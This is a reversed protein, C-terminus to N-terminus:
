VESAGTALSKVFRLGTVQYRRREYFRHADTRERRSNVICALAQQSRLWSEAQDILQTGIGQRRCAEAVVLGTIRGWRGDHELCLGWCASVLGAL